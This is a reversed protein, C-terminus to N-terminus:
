GKVLKTSNPIPYLARDSESEVRELNVFRTLRRSSPLESLLRFKMAANVRRLVAENRTLLKLSGEARPVSVFRKLMSRLQFRRVPNAFRVFMADRPYRSTRVFKSPRIGSWGGNLAIM